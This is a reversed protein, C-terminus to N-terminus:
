FGKMGTGTREPLATEGYAKQAQRRHIEHDLQQVTNELEPYSPKQSM